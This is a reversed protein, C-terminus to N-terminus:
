KASQGLRFDSPSIGFRERFAHSLRNPSRFGCASAINSIPENTNRLMRKAAEFRSALITEYLSTGNVQRFRLDLLRRSIRLRRAIEVPTLNPDTAFLNIQDQVSKIIHAAPPIIRTSSREVVTIAKDITIDAIGPPTSTRMLRVLEQAARRGHERHNIAISTLSPSLYHCLLPDNDVSIVAVQDPIHLGFGKCSEYIGIAGIDWASIVATPKPLSTLWRGLRHRDGVCPSHFTSGRINAAQCSRLFGKERLRSWAADHESGVFGFSRFTRSKLLHQVAKAGIDIDNHHIFSVRRNPHSITPLPNDLVTVPIGNAIIANISDVADTYGIIFGNCGAAIEHEVFDKTLGEHLTMIHLNWQLHHHRIYSLIGELTERGSLADMLIPIAVNKSMPLLIASLTEMNM